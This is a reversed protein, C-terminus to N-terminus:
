ECQVRLFFSPGRACYSLYPVTGRHDGGPGPAPGGRRRRAGMNRRPSNVM